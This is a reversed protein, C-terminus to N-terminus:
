CLLVFQNKNRDARLSSLYRHLSKEIPPNSFLYLRGVNSLLRLM